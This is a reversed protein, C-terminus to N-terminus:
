AFRGGGYRKFLEMRKFYELDMADPKSIIPKGCDEKKDNKFYNAGEPLETYDDSDGIGWLIHKAWGKGCSRCGICFPVPKHKDPYYKDQLHDELGKDLWMKYVAGCEECQYVFYGHVPHKLSDATYLKGTEEVEVPMCFFNGVPKEEKRKGDATFHKQYWKKYKKGKAM